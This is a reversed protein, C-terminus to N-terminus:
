RRVSRRTAWSCARFEASSSSMGHLGAKAQQLRSDIRGMMQRGIMSMEDLISLQTGKLHKQLKSLQDASSLERFYPPTFWQILRHITTAQFRLNFAATGTPAGVRVFARRDVDVPLDALVRQLEQLVTQVARTKGSGATGLLLLRLPKPTQRKQICQIVHEMHDLVMAVFLQQYDDNLTDRSLTDDSYANSESRLKDWTDRARGSDFNSRTWHREYERGAPPIEPNVLHWFHNRRLRWCRILAVLM